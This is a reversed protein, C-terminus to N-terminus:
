VESMAFEHEALQNATIAYLQDVFNVQFSAPGNANEMACVGALKFHNCACLAALFPEEVALYSAIAAGLSCGAGTIKTM